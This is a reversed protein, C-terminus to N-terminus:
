HWDLSPRHNFADNRRFERLFWEVLPSDEETSSSAGPFLELVRRVVEQEEDTPAQMINFIGSHEIVLPPGVVIMEAFLSVRDLHKIHDEYAELVGPGVYAEYIKAELKRELSRQEGCKWTTMIDYSMSEEADHLLIAALAQDHFYDDSVVKVATGPARLQALGVMCRIHHLVSWWHRTAGNFRPMRGRQLAMDLPSPVAFNGPTVLRGTYTTAM